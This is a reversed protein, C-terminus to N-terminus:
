AELSVDPLAQFPIDTEFPLTVIVTVYAMHAMRNTHGDSTMMM